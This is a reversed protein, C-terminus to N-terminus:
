SIKGDEKRKGKSCFDDESNWWTVRTCHRYDDDAAYVCEKCRIIELQASSISLAKAAMKIAESTQSATGLVDGTLIRIALENTM